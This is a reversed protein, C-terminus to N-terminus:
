PCSTTLTITGDGPCGMGFPANFHLLIYPFFGGPSISGFSNSTYQCYTPNFTLSFQPIFNGSITGSAPSAFASGFGSFAASFSCGNQTITVTGPGGGGQQYAVTSAYVGSINACGALPDAVTVTKSISATPGSQSSETLTVTYMGAAGYCHCAGTQSFGAGFGDGFLWTGGTGGVSTDQFCIPLGVTPNSPSFVFDPIPPPGSGGGVVVSASAPGWTTNANSVTLMPTYTGAAMYVHSPNPLASVNVPGSSPDGFVWSWSTPNGSSLDTFQVAQGPSPNLPSFSFSASLPEVLVSQSESGAGFANWAFFIVLWTGSTMYTHAPNQQTSTSGDGFDWHWTTPSGTSTDTFQVAEGVSPNSPSITFHAVPPLGGATSRDSEGRVFITDQSSNDLVSAAAFVGDTADTTVTAYANLSVTSAASVLEFLNSAPFFAGPALTTTFDSGIQGGSDGSFARVRVPVAAAAPNFMVLNTRFAPTQALSTLVSSTFADSDELGPVFQGVTGECLQNISYLRSTVMLNAASTEFRVAGQTNPLNFLSVAIDNYSVALRPGITFTRVAVSTCPVCHYSATVSITDAYSPNFVRVDSLFLAQGQVSAVATVTIARAIALSVSFIVVLVVLISKRM